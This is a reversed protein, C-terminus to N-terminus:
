SHDQKKWKGLTTISYDLSHHTRKFVLRLQLTTMNALFQLLKATQMNKQIVQFLYIIDKHICPLLDLVLLIVYRMVKYSSYVTAKENAMLYDITRHGRYEELYDKIRTEYALKRLPDDSFKFLDELNSDPYTHIKFDTNDLLGKLNIFPLKTVRTALYSILMSEWHYYVLVPGLCASYKLM